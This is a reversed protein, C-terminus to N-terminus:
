NRRSSLAGGRSLASDGRAERAARTKRGGTRVGDGGAGEGPRCRRGPPVPASRSRGTRSRGRRSRPPAPPVHRPHQLHIFHNLGPQHVVKIGAERADPLLQSGTGVAHPLAGRVKDAPRRTGAPRRPGHLRERAAPCASAARSPATTEGKGGRKKKIGFAKGLSHACAPPAGAKGETSSAPPQEPLAPLQRCQPATGKTHSIGARFSVNRQRQPTYGSRM